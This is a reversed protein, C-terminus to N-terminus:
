PHQSLLQPNGRDNGIVEDILALDFGPQEFIQLVKLLVQNRLDPSMAKWEVCHLASLAEYDKQSPPICSTIKILKDVLCISFHTGEFMKKLATVSALRQFETM